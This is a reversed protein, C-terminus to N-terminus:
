RSSCCRRGPERRSTVSGVAPSRLGHLERREGLQGDLRKDAAAQDEEEDPADVDAPREVEDSLGIDHVEETGEDQEEGGGPHHRPAPLHEQGGLSDLLREAPQRLEIEDRVRCALHQRCQDSRVSDADGGVTAPPGIREPLDGTSDQHLPHEACRPREHHHRPTQSEGEPTVVIDALQDQELDDERGPHDDSEGQEEGPARVRPELSAAPITPERPHEATEPQGQVTVTFLWPHKEENEGRRHTELEDADQGDPQASLGDPEIEGRDDVDHHPREQKEDHEDRERDVAEANSFGEEDSKQRAEVNRGVRRKGRAEEEVGDRQGRGKGAGENEEPSAHSGGGGRHSPWGRRTVGWAVAPWGRGANRSL